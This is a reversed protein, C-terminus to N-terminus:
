NLRVIIHQLIHINKDSCFTTAINTTTMNSFLSPITNSIQAFNNVKM